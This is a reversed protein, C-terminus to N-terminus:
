CLSCLPLPNHSLSLDSLAVGVERADKLSLDPM